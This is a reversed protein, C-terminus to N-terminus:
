INSSEPTDDDEHSPLTGAGFGFGPDNESPSFIFPPLFPNLDLQPLFPNQELTITTYENTNESNSQANSIPPPNSVADVPPLFPNLDLDSQHESTPQNSRTGATSTQIAPAAAAVSADGARAIPSQTHTQANSGSPPSLDNSPLNASSLDSPIPPLLEDFPEQVNTNPAFAITTTAAATTTPQRTTTILKFPTTSFVPRTTIPIKTTTIIPFANTKPAFSNVSKINNNRQHQQQQQPQQNRNASVSTLFAPSKSRVLAGAENIAAFASKAETNSNIPPLLEISPEAATLALPTVTTPITSFTYKSPFITSFTTPVVNTPRLTPKTTTKTFGSGLSFGAPAKATPVASLSKARATAASAHATTTEANGHSSLRARNDLNAAFQTQQANQRQSQHQANLSQDIYSKSQRSIPQNGFQVNARNSANPNNGIKSFPSPNSSSAQSAFGNGIAHANRSNAISFQAAKTTQAKTTAITTFGKFANAQTTLQFSTFPAPTANLNQKSKRVLFPNDNSPVFATPVLHQHQTTRTVRPTTTSTTTVDLPNVSNTNSTIIFNPPLAESDITGDNRIAYGPTQLGLIEIRKNIDSYRPESTTKDISNTQSPAFPAQLTTSVTHIPSNNQVENQANSTQTVTSPRQSSPARQEFSNLNKTPRARGSALASDSDHGNDSEIVPGITKTAVDIAPQIQVPPSKDDDTNRFIIGSAYSPIVFPIPSTQGGNDNANRGKFVFGTTKLQRANKNSNSNTHVTSHRISGRGISRGSAVQSQEIVVSAQETTSM